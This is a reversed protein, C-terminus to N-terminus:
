AEVTCVLHQPNCKANGAFHTLRHQEIVGLFSRLCPCAPSPSTRAPANQQFNFQTEFWESLCRSLSTMTHAGRLLMCCNRIASTKRPPGGDVRNPSSQSVVRKAGQELKRQDQKRQIYDAWIYMNDHREPFFYPSCAENQQTTNPGPTMCM